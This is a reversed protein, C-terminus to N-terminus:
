ENNCEQWIGVVQEKPRRWGKGRSSGRHGRAGLQLSADGDGEQPGAAAPVQLIGRLLLQAVRDLQEVRSGSYLVQAHRPWLQPLLCLPWAGAGRRAALALRGCWLEQGSCRDPQLQPAIARGM